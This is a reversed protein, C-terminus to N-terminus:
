TKGIVMFRTYKEFELEGKYYVEKLNYQDILEDVSNVCNIHDQVEFYNNSQLAVYTGNRCKLPPMHECSTNIMFYEYQYESCNILEPRVLQNDKFYINKSISITEEDIDHLRIETQPYLQQIYPVLINGYWSGAVYIRKQEPIPINFLEQYLWHKCKIQKENFSQAIDTAKHPFKKIAKASALDIQFPKNM